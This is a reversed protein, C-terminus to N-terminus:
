AIDCYEPSWEIDEEISRDRQPGLTFTILVTPVIIHRLLFTAAPRRQYIMTCFTGQDAIKILIM